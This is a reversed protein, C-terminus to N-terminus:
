VSLLQNRYESERQHKAENEIQKEVNKVLKILMTRAGIEAKLVGNISKIRTSNM